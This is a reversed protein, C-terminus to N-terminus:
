KAEMHKHKKCNEEKCNIEIRMTRHNSFINSIIAIKKFKSLSTKQGLIHNIRSFTGHITCKFLIHM